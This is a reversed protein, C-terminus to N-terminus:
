RLDAAHGFILCGCAIEAMITSTLIHEGCIRRLTADVGNLRATLVDHPHPTSGHMRYHGPSGTQTSRLLLQHCSSSHGRGTTSICRSTGIWFGRMGRADIAARSEASFYTVDHAPEYIGVHASRHTQGYGNGIGNTVGYQMGPIRITVVWVDHAM